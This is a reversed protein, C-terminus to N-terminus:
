FDSEKRVCCVDPGWRAVFDDPCFQSDADYTYWGFKNFEKRAELECIVGDQHKQFM